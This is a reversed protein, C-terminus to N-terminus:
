LEAEGKFKVILGEIIEMNSVANDYLRINRREEESADEEFEGTDEYLSWKEKIKSDIDIIARIRRREALYEDKLLFNIFHWEELSLKM